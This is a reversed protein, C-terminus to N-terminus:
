SADLHAFLEESLAPLAKCAMRLLRRELVIDRGEVYGLDRMRM